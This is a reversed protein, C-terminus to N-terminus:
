CKQGGLVVEEYNNTLYYTHDECEILLFSVCDLGHLFYLKDLDSKHFFVSVPASKSYKRNLLKVDEKLENEFQQVEDFYILRRNYYNELLELLAKQLNNKPQTQHQLFSMYYKM